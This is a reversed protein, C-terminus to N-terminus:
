KNIRNIAEVPNVRSAQWAPIACSLINLLLCFFLTWIITSINLLMSSSIYMTSLDPSLFKSSFILGSYLNVFILSFILGIIGGALTIIFNELIIDKMIRRRTCGFARMVGIEGIRRRLRSHTMSSLNIAPIILLLAFIIMKERRYGNTDPAHNSSDLISYEEQTFPQGHREIKLNDHKLRSDIINFRRNVENRIIDFDDKSKALILAEISGVMDSEDQAELDTTLPVYIQSYATTALSSVNEIVGVVQFPRYSMSFERGTCNVTGFLKRAIHETIVAVNMAADYEAKDFPRGNIFTFDFINWFSTDVGKKSAIFASTGPIRIDTKVTNSHVFSVYESGPVSDYLEKALKYSTGSSSSYGNDIGVIHIFKGYMMRDRNTEPRFPAVNIQQMIVIVMILFVALATGIVTVLSIVSQKRFDYIIQKIAKM